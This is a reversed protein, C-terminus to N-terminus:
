VSFKSCSSHDISAYIFIDRKQCAALLLEIADDGKFLLLLGQHFYKKPWM